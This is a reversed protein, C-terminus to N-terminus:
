EYRLNLASAYIPRLHNQHIFAYARDQAPDAMSRTVWCSGGAVLRDISRTGGRLTLWLDSLLGTDVGVLTPAQNFGLSNKARESSTFKKKGELQHFGLYIFYHPPVHVPGEHSQSSIIQTSRYGEVGSGIWGLGAWGLGVWCGHRSVLQWWMERVWGGHRDGCREGCWTGAAHRSCAEWQVSREKKFTSRGVGRPRASANVPSPKWAKRKKIKKKRPGGQDIMSALCTCIDNTTTGHRSCLFGAWLSNKGSKTNKNKISHDKHSAKCSLITYVQPLPLPIPSTNIWPPKGKTTEPISQDTLPVHFTLLSPGPPRNTSLTWRWLM